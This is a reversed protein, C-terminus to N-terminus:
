AAMASQELMVYTERNLGDALHGHLELFEKAIRPKRYM